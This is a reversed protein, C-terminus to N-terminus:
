CSSLMHIHMLMYRVRRSLLWCRSQDVIEGVSEEVCEGPDPLWIFPKEDHSFVHVLKLFTQGRHLSEVCLNPIPRTTLIETKGVLDMQKPRLSFSIAIRFRTFIQSGVIVIESNSNLTKSEQFRPNCVRQIM